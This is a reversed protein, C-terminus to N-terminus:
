LTQSILCTEARSKAKRPDCVEAMRAQITHNLHNKMWHRSSGFEWFLNTELDQVNISEGQKLREIAKWMECANPCADVTSYIDNDISSTSREMSAEVHMPGCLDMHLLYLKEQNTDKSKPKHTKKVSKAMACASCLHDKEFKLKPLGRVLGQRALYNIAGFNLHSLRRHWLWSKTKSAKSLLCIHSSAMMDQLSLTYLNNGQSGTLLDVGDLNRIFCTHQFFAVELDSDCFQGESFLNYRSSLKSLRCDILPSPVNFSSSGWSNNPKMKNAVSSKTITSNNVPVKKNAAKTKGSYVLTVIPKDTSNVIPIPETPPVITTTAIRIKNKKTNDPTKSGSASFLLTVGTSSLVHTNSDVNASPPTTVTTKGSTTIQETFRVQKNKNKLTLAYDLSTNLPNILRESEIIERLTTAEELTH